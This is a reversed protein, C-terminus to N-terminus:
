KVFMVDIFIVHGDDAYAQDFNGAYRFGSSYLLDLIGKFNAQDKYLEDLSVELICAKAIEFTRKGGRIVRDEYGQVDLKILIDPELPTSLSNFWKDLTIMKVSIPVQKKTLPYLRECVNTTKLFSSATSYEVHSLM